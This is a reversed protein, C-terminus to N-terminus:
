RVQNWATDQYPRNAFRGQFKYMQFKICISPCFRPWSVKVPRNAGYSLSELRDNEKDQKSNAAEATPRAARGAM